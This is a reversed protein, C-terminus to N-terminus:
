NKQLRAYAILIYIENIGLKKVRTIVKGLKSLVLLWIIEIM